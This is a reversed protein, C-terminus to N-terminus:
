QFAAAPQRGSETVAGPDDSNPSLAAVSGKGRLPAGDFVSPILAIFPRGGERPFTARLAPHPPRRAPRGDSRAVAPM